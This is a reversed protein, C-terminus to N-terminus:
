SFTTLFDRLRIHLIGPYGPFSGSVPDMSIVMKPYNDNIVALNGFEREITEESALLYTSQIYFRTDGKLAVFDIETSKLSGVYVKYGHILLHNYIVNEMLKEISGRISFGTLLNRLGHDTFYYKQLQEFIKKGHIDYRFVPSMLLADKIFRVYNGTLLDSVKNGYSNMTNTVKRTSFLKGINEAMFTILSELFAVNRIKERQIIDKMVITSFVGQLYDNVQRENDIDFLSLGPLGGVRLYKELSSDSDELKHFTLFETYSLSYVPIEIYRGGLYTSLESSFIHANSGTVVIQCKREAHLSRIALQFCDIEQIEDILLYNSANHDLRENVYGYLQDSDGILNFRTLEKNIYIINSDPNLTKLEKELQMLIFSKGVRRQGVLVIIMGRDIIELIHDVYASRPIIKEIGHM